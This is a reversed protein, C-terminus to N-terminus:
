NNVSILKKIATVFGNKFLTKGNIDVVRGRSNAEWGQSEIFEPSIANALAERESDLLKPPSQNETLSPTTEKRMDIELTTVSKVLQLESVLKRNTAALDQVLFRITPDSIRDIWEKQRSVKPKNTQVPNANQWANILARYTEGTSNRISQAKPIGIDEGLRSITAISFDKSGRDFQENCVKHIADLTKRTRDNVASDKLKEYVENVDTM